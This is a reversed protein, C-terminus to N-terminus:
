SGKRSVQEGHATQAAGKCDDVPHGRGPLAAVPSVKELRDWQPCMLM